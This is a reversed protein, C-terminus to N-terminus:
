KILSFTKMVKYSNQSGDPSYGIVCAEALLTRPIPFDKIKMFAEKVKERDGDLLLTSHFIFSKDYEHQSVGYKESFLTCLKEHLSTLRENERYKLWVITEHLEIKETEMEFADENALLREIDDAAVEFASDDVEKSICLSLHMPLNEIDSSEFGIENELRKVEEKIQALQAELNIACWLFM